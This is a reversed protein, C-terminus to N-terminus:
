FAIKGRQGVTQCSVMTGLASVDSALDRRLLKSKIELADCKSFGIRWRVREYIYM